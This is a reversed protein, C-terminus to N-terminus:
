GERLSRRVTRLALSLALGLVQVLLAALLALGALVLDTIRTTARFARALGLTEVAPRTAPGASESLRALRALDDPSDVHRLLALTDTASTGVFVRGADRGLEGLRALRATDAVDSLPARGLALDGVRNWAIPIDAADALVRSFDPTIRGARRAVRTVTAGAKIAFSTGGTFVVLATAGLGVLALGTEIRDVDRSGAWNMGQRRLANLDGVPTLEIPLACAVIQSISRCDAVDLACAGCRGLDTTWGPSVLAEATGRLDAPITVGHGDALNLLLAARDIDERAVAAELRPLLWGADVRRAVAREVAVRAEAAGREAFPLVLPNAALGVMSLIAALLSAVGLAIRGWRRM